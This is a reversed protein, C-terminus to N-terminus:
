NDQNHYLDRAQKVYDLMVPNSNLIGKRYYIGMPAQPSTKWQLFSLEPHPMLLHGPVMCFRFGALIQPYPWFNGAILDLQRKELRALNADAQDIGSINCSFLHVLHERQNVYAHFTFYLLLM